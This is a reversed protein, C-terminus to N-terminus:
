EVGLGFILRLGVGEVMFALRAEEMYLEMVVVVAALSGELDGVEVVRVEGASRELDRGCHGGSSSALSRM